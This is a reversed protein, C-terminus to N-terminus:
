SYFINALYLECGLKYQCYHRTECSCSSRDERERGHGQRHDEAERQPLGGHIPWQHHCQPRHKCELDNGDCKDRAAEEGHLRSSKRGELGLQEMIQLWLEDSLRM